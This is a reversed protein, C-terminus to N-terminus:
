SAGSAGPKKSRRPESTAAARPSSTRYLRQVDLDSYLRYGSFSRESPVLLGIQDYHRLARVTVGTRKALEGIQWRRETTDQLRDM